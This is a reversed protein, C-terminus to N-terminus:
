RLSSSLTKPTVIFPSLLAYGRRITLAWPITFSVTPPSGMESKQHVSYPVPITYGALILSLGAVKPVEPRSNRLLLTMYSRSVFVTHFWNWPM